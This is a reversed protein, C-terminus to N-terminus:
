NIIRVLEPQQSQLEVRQRDMLKLLLQHLHMAPVIRVASQIECM